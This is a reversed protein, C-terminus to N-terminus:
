HIDCKTELTSKFGCSDSAIHARHAKNFWPPTLYYDLLLFISKMASIPRLRTQSLNSSTPICRGIDTALLISIVLVHKQLLSNTNKKHTRAHTHTRTNNPSFHTVHTQQPTHEHLHLLNTLHLGGQCKEINLLFDEIYLVQWVCVVKWVM